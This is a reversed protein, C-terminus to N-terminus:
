IQVEINQILEQLKKTMCGLCLDPQEGYVRRDVEFIYDMELRVSFEPIVGVYIQKSRAAPKGCINCVKLIM